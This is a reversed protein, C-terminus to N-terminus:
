NMVVDSYLLKEYDEIPMPRAFYFGQAMDCKLGSLLDVQEITEIGECITKMHLSLALSIVHSIINNARENNTDSLFSRDIKLVDVPLNKLMNLSSYGTGFDDISIHFGYNKLENFVRTLTDLNEFAVSETIEIEFYKTPVNYKTCIDYLDRVFNPEQLNM